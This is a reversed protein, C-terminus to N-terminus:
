YRVSANGWFNVISSIVNESEEMNIPKSVYANAGLQYSELIDDKNKSTSFVIVPLNDYCPSKQMKALVEKGNMQPMNLDLLILVIEDLNLTSLCSFLENGNLCHILEHPINKEKFAIETLIYDAYNDEVIIIKLNNM